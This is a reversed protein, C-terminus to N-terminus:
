AGEPSLIRAGERDVETSWHLWGMRHAVDEVLTNWGEHEGPFAFVSEGLMVVGAHAVGALADLVQSVKGPALGCERAFTRSLMSFTRIDPSALFRHLANEGAGEIKRVIVPDGLMLPTNVGGGSLLHVQGGIDFRRVEGYIGPSVRAEFGGGASGVVDGRGTSAEVEAVHATRVAFGEPLAFMHELALAVALAGAGSMGFGHSVPLDHHVEVKLGPVHGLLAVFRELVVRTTSHRLPDYRRGDLFVHMKDGTTRTIEARAGLCVSFGAGISGKGEPEPPDNRLAFFGTIHGPAFASVHEM